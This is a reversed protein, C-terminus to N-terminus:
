ASSAFVVAFLLTATPYKAKVSLEVPKLFVPTPCLANAFLV